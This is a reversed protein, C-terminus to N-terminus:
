RFVRSQPFMFFFSVFDYRETDSSVRRIFCGNEDGVVTNTTWSFSNGESKLYLRHEDNKNSEKYGLWSQINLNQIHPLEDAKDENVKPIYYYKKMVDISPFTITTSYISDADKNVPEAQIIIDNQIEEESIIYESEETYITNVGKLLYTSSDSSQNYGTTFGCVKIEVSMQNPKVILSFNGNEYKVKLKSNTRTVVIENKFKVSSLPITEIPMDTDEGFAFIFFDGNKANTLPYTGKPLTERGNLLDNYVIDNGDLSNDLRVWGSSNGGQNTETYVGKTRSSIMYFNGGQQPDEYTGFSTLCVKRDALNWNPLGTTDSWGNIYFKGDGLGKYNQDLNNIIGKNKIIGEEGEVIIKKSDIGDSIFVNGDKSNINLSINNDGLLLDTENLMKILNVNSGDKLEANIASGYDLIFGKEPNVHIEILESSTILNGNTTRIFNKQTSDDCLLHHYFIRGKAENVVGQFLGYVSSILLGTKGNVDAHWNSFTGRYTAGTLNGEIGNWGSFNSDLFRTDSSVFYPTEIPIADWTNNTKNPIFHWEEGQYINKNGNNFLVLLYGSSVNSFKLKFSKSNSDVNSVTVVLFQEPDDSIFNFDSFSNTESNNITFNGDALDTKKIDKFERGSGTSGSDGKEGKEGQFILNAKLWTSSSTDYQYYDFNAGNKVACTVGEFLRDPNNTTFTDREATTDFYMDDAISAGSTGGNGKGLKNEIFSIFSDKTYANGGEDFLDSINVKKTPYWGNVNQFYFDDTTQSNQTILVNKALDSYEFDQDKGKIYFKSGKVFVKYM